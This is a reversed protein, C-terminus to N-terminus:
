AGPTAPREPGTVAPPGGDHGAKTPPRRRRVALGAATLHGAPPRRRCALPQHHRQTTEPCSLSLAPECHEGQNGSRKLWNFPTRQRPRAEVLQLADAPAAPQQTWRAGDCLEPGGPGTQRRCKQSSDKPNYTGTGAGRAGENRRPRRGPFDEGASRRGKNGKSSKGPRARRTSPGARACSRM